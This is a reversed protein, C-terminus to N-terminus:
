LLNLVRKALAIRFFYFLEEVPSECSHLIVSLAQAAVERENDQKDCRELEDVLGLSRAYGHSGEAEIFAGDRELENWRQYSEKIKLGYDVAPEGHPLNPCKLGQQILPRRFSRIILRDM